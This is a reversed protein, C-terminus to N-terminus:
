ENLQQLEKLYDSPSREPNLKHLTLAQNILNQNIKQHDARVRKFTVRKKRGFSTIAQVIGKLKKNAKKSAAKEQQKRKWERAFFLKQIDTGLDIFFQISIERISAKGSFTGDEKKDFQRTITIYGAKALDSLARKARIFNIGAKTAIYELDLPIFKGEADHFGVRLKVLELYHLLVQAVSSIAERRESRKQRGSLNLGLLKKLLKKPWHYTEMLVDIARELVSPRPKHNEPRLYFRPENPIHGCRNGIMIPRLAQLKNVQDNLSGLRDLSDGFDILDGPLSQTTEPINTKLFM